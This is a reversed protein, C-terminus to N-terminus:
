NLSWFLIININIWFLGTTPNTPFPATRKKGQTESFLSTQVALLEWGSVKKKELFRHLSKQMDYWDMMQPLIHKVPCTIILFLRNHLVPGSPPQTEKESVSFRWEQQRSKMTFIECLREQRHIISSLSIYFRKYM